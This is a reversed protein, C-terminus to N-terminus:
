SMNLVTYFSFYICFIYLKVSAYMCRPGGLLFGLRSGERRVVEGGIEGSIDNMIGGQFGMFIDRIQDKNIGVM